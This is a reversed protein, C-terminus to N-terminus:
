VTRKCNFVLKFQSWLSFLFNQFKKFNKSINRTRSAALIKSLFSFPKPKGRWNRLIRWNPFNTFRMFKWFIGTLVERIRPSNEFAWFLACLFIFGCFLAFIFRIKIKQFQLQILHCFRKSALQFSIFKCVHLSIIQIFNRTVQGLSFFISVSNSVTKPM